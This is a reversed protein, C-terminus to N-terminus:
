ALGVENRPAKKKKRAPVEEAGPEPPPLGTAPPTPPPGGTGSGSPESAPPTGEPSGSDASSGSDSSSGKQEREEKGGAGADSAGTGPGGRGPAVDSDASPNPAPDPDRESERGASKAVARKFNARMIYSDTQDAAWDVSAEREPLADFFAELGGEPKAALGARMCVGVTALLGRKREESAERAKGELRLDGIGRKLIAEAEEVRSLVGGDTMLFMAPRSTREKEEASLSSYERQKALRRASLLPDSTLHPTPVTKGRFAAEESAQVLGFVREEPRGRRGPRLSAAEAGLGVIGADAGGPKESVKKGSVERYAFAAPARSGAGGRGFVPFVLSGEIKEYAGEEFGAEEFQSSLKKGEASEKPPAFGIGLARAQALAGEASEQEFARRLLDLALAAEGGGPVGPRTEREEEEPKAGASLVEYFSRGVQARLGAQKKARKRGPKRGTARGALKVEVNYIGALHRVAGPFDTHETKRIFDFVDGSTKCGFCNFLGKERDLSMSARKDEHFPCRCMAQHGGSRKPGRGPAYRAALDFIDARRRVEEITEEAIGPM